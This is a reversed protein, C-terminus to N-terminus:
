FHIKHYDFTQGDTFLKIKKAIRIFVQLDNVALLRIADKSGRSADALVLLFSFKYKKLWAIAKQDNVVAMDFAAFHPFKNKLLWQNAEESGRIAKALAALEPYGNNLLWTFIKDNGDVAEGFAVLIKVPYKIM